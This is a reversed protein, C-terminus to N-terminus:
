VRPTRLAAEDDGGDGGEPYAHVRGVDGGDGDGTLGDDAVREDRHAGPQPEALVVVQLPRPVRVIVDDADIPRVGRRDGVDSAHQGHPGDGDRAARRGLEPAGAGHSGGRRPGGRTSARTLEALSVLTRQADHRVVDEGVRVTVRPFLEVRVQGVLSRIRLVPQQERHLVHAHGFRVDDRQLLNVLLPVVREPHGLHAGGAVNGGTAQGFLRTQGALSARRKAPSILPPRHSGLLRTQVGRTRHGLLPVRRIPYRGLGVERVSQGLHVRHSLERNQLRRRTVAARNHNCVRVQKEM